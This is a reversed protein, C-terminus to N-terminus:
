VELYRLYYVSLIVLIVITVLGHALVVMDFPVNVFSSFDADWFLEIFTTVLSTFFGPYHRMIAPNVALTLVFILFVVALISTKSSRLLIAILAVISLIFLTYMAIGTFLLWSVPLLLMMPSIMMILLSSVCVLLGVFIGYTTLFQTILLRARSVPYSLLLQTRGQELGGAMTSILSIAAFLMVFPFIIDLITSVHRILIPALSPLTMRYSQYIPNGSALVLALIIGVVAELAPFRYTDEFEWQFLNLVTKM